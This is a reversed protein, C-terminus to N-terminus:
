YNFKDCRRIRDNGLSVDTENQGIYKTMSKNYNKFWTLESSSNYASLIYSYLKYFWTKRVRMLGQAQQVLCNHVAWSTSALYLAHYTTGQQQSPGVVWALSNCSVTPYSTSGVAVVLLTFATLTVSESWQVVWSYINFHSKCSFRVNLRFNLEVSNFM